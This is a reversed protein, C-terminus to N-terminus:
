INKLIILIGSFLLVVSTINRFTKEPIISHFLSGVYLGALAFPLVMLSSLILQFNFLGFGTYMTIRMFTMALFISMLAVRFARKQFNNTKFYFILPPGAMGFLGGLLGSLSGFIPIWIPHTLDPKLIDEFFLHYISLLIIVAGLAILLLINEANSLLYSGLFLLPFISIIFYWTKKFNIYERDKFSIVLETPLCVLIFFPVFFDIKGYLMALMSIAFMGSGFGITSYIIQSLFIISSIIIFQHINSFITNRLIEM